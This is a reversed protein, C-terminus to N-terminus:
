HLNIKANEGKGNDKKRRMGEQYEEYRRKDAESRLQGSLHDFLKGPLHEKRTQFLMDDVLKALGWSFFVRDQFDSETNLTFGSTCVGVFFSERTKTIEVRGVCDAGSSFTAFGNPVAARLPATLFREVM